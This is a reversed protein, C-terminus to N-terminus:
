RRRALWFAAGSFGAVALGAVIGPWSDCGVEFDFMSFCQPPDSSNGSTAWLLLWM